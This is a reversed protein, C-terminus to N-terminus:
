PVETARLSVVRVPAWEFIKKVKALKDAAKDNKEVRAETIRRLASRVERSRAIAKDGERLFKRVRKSKTSGVQDITMDVTM